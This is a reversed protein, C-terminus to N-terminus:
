PAATLGEAESVSLGELSIAGRVVTRRTITPAASPRPTPQRTPAPSPAPTPELTTPAKSTPSTSPGEVADSPDSFGDVYCPCWLDYNRTVGDQTTVEYWDQDCGTYYSVCEEYSVPGGDDAPGFCGVIFPPKEQVHHHYVEAGNSDPTVGFHASCADLDDPHVDTDEYGGYIPTATDDSAEGLPAEGNAGAAMQQRQEQNMEADLM